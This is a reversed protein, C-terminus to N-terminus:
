RNRDTIPKLNLEQFEITLDYMKHTCNSKWEGPSKSARGAVLMVVGHEPHKPNDGIEYELCITKANESVLVKTWRSVYVNKLHRSAASAFSLAVSRRLEEASPEPVAEPAATPMKFAHLQGGIVLAIFAAAVIGLGHIRTM